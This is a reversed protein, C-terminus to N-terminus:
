ATPERASTKLMNGPWREDWVQIVNVAGPRNGARHLINLAANHDRDLVLGCESCSHVRDALGKRVLVGCGSCTQSTMRPDVKVFTGGAKEAKYSLMSAFTSWSADSISRALHKNKLMSAVRLDEVVILDYSNVIRASQQHLWTTRANVINAHLRVLRAKVKKRRSSGLKCRALARSRQRMEREARRAVQPAPVVIGDSQYAFAILGVDIGVGRAIVKKEPTAIEVQFCINWGKCDRNIVCSAIRSGNNPLPRHLHVKVGTPLGKFRLRSGDFQIGSFESFGFSNWRGKGRFRPFGAKGSHAKIRRFFGAFAGDLRRLTWRQITVPLEAMEPLDHRCITLSKSQDTYTRTKGTKQYYTVREELAANYLQRQSECIEALAKHQRKNLLLRYKYTLFM